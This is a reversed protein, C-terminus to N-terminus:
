IITFVGNLNPGVPATNRSVITGILKPDVATSENIGGGTSEAYNRAILSSIMKVTGNAIHIGGGVNATNEVFDSNFITTKGLSIIRLGGGDAGDVATNAKFLCNIIKTKTDTNGDTSLGAGDDGSVNGTFRSREITVTAFTDGVYGGGGDEGTTNGSIKSNQVLLTSGPQLGSNQAYFGGGQAATDQALNGTIVSKLIAITPSDIALGGGDAGAGTTKNGHIQSGIIKVSTADASIGGGQGVSTNGIISSNKLVLTGAAVRIGGGDDSTNQNDSIVTNILKLSGSSYIGGGDSTATNGTVLCDKLTLKEGINDIGAGFGVGGGGNAITLGLLKVSIELGSNILLVRSANEGSIAIRGGGQITLDDTINLQGTALAIEGQLGPAFKILDAGASANTTNIADRLSGAGADNLNTVIITAPAIRDELLEVGPLRDQSALEKM